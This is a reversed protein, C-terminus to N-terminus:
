IVDHTLILECCQYELAMELQFVAVFNAQIWIFGSKSHRTNLHQSYRIEAAPLISWFARRCPRTSELGSVQGVNHEANPWPLGPSRVHWLLKLDPRLLPFLFYTFCVRPQNSLAPCVAYLTADLKQSAKQLTFTPRLGQTCISLAIEIFYTWSEVKM